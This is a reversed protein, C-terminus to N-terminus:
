ATGPQAVPAPKTFWFYGFAIALFLYLAVLAWGLPNFLGNLQAIFTIVAGAGDYIFLDLIIARRARSESANRAYWTLLMTGILAVGYERGAFEGGSNLDAGFISYTFVPSALLLVGFILCVAAKIVLLTKLSM